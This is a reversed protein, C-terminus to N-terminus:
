RSRREVYALLRRYAERLRELAVDGDVCEKAPEDILEDGRGIWELDRAAGALEKALLNVAGGKIAHAQEALSGLDRSILAEEMVPIQRSVNKLFGQLVEELLEADGEFEEVAQQYDMPERGADVREPQTTNPQASVLFGEAEMEPSGPTGIWKAVMSLLEVRRMPKTLYDDMGATLCKERYGVVAHATMAIIPTRRDRNVTKPPERNVTPAPTAGCHTANPAVGDPSLNNAGVAVGGDTTEEVTSGNFRSGHVKADEVTSGNFRSGHVGSELKRIERTAEWGDMVPMQVDMLILDYQQKQVARVAELGNEAIDVVYGAGRLHQLAVQRNTPYDEVLLIRGSSFGPSVVAPTAFLEGVPERLLAIDSSTVKSLELIFSFTSGQGPASELSIAGGMLEVFRKCIALGLGTGGYERTTSGDVQTFSEFILSHKQEPIGIGTDRVEFRVVVADERAEALEASVRVEGVPTFKIANGGLNLLVQRLRASDGLLAPPIDPDVRSVYLVGKNRAMMALTDRVQNFVVRLDFPASELKLQGAEIKSFDLIDNIISMLSEAEDSITRLAMKPHIGDRESQALEAMGMIANLPTRIEHSMSALFQSKALNASEAQQRSHELDQEVRRRELLEGAMRENVATTELLASVNERLSREMHKLAAALRGVESSQESFHHAVSSFHDSGSAFDTRSLGKAYDVLVFLPKTIRTAILLAVILSGGLIGLIIWSLHTVVARAPAGIEVVDAVTAVYWGLPEFLICSSEWERIHGSEDAKGFRVSTCNKSAAQEVIEELLLRGSFANVLTKPDWGLGEPYILLEGEANFLLVGGSDAGRVGSFHVRLNELLEQKKLEGERELADIDVSVGIVWDLIPYPLFFGFRKMPEVEDGWPWYFTTSASAERAIKESVALALSRGTFDRLQNVDRGLVQPDGHGVVMGQDDFIIVEMDGLDARALWEQVLVATLERPLNASEASRRFQDVMQQAMMTVGRLTRRHANVADLRHWLLNRYGSRMNLDILELVNQAGRRDAALMAKEVGRHMFVFVLLSVLGLSGCILLFLKAKLSHLM